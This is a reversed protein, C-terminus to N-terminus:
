RATVPRPTPSRGPPPPDAPTSRDREPGTGTAGERRQDAGNQSVPPPLALKSVPPPLALESVPPPLAIKSVPPPLALKGVPPPLALQISVARGNQILLARGPPGPPRREPRLGFVELEGQGSLGGIGGPNLLLGSRSTRALGLLGRYAGLLEPASTAIVLRRGGAHAAVLDGLEDARSGPIAAGSTDDVLVTRTPHKALEAALGAVTRTPYAAPDEASGAGGLGTGTPGAGGLGTGTPGAGGLGTGTPGAGGLGAGTTETGSSGAGTPGVRGQPEGFQTLSIWLGPEGLRALGYALGRLVSTRGSGAPGVVLTIPAADLDLELVRAEDGGIGIPLRHGDTPSKTVWSERQWADLLQHHDLRRPLEPIQWSSQSVPPRVVAECRDPSSGGSRLVHGAPDIEGLAVQIEAADPFRPGIVLGRGAPQPGSSRSPPVGALVADAPDAFRLVVRETLLASVNGTLLNRGGSIAAVVGVAPGDRLVATLQDIPRGHDVTSWHSTLTEWGDILLVIDPWRSPSPGPSGRLPDSQRADIEASLLRLLRDVRESDQVAIVAEVLPVTRLASLGGAGDIVYLHLDAVTREGLPVDRQRPEAAAARALTLLTTTRGSRPGGTVALHTGALPWALLDQRQESPRDILAFPLERTASPDTSAGQGDRTSRRRLEDWLIESPLPPICFFQV